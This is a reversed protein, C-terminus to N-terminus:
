RQILVKQCLIREKTALQIFYMGNAIDSVELCAEEQLGEKKRIVRGQIDLLVIDFFGSYQVQFFTQAPNPFLLFADEEEAIENSSVVDVVFEQTSVCGLADTITLFYTDPSLNQLNATTDGTHWLFFFPPTGGLLSDLQLTGDASASQTAPSINYTALLPETSPIFVETSDQCGNADTITFNYFGGSLETTEEGEQGLHTWQYTYPMEGTVSFTVTGNNTGFCSEPSIDEVKINYQNVEYAGLDPFDDLIRPHGAIDTLLQLSDASFISGGNIAPSCPLLSFDGNMTDRFMPWIAFLMNGECEDIGNSLCNEANVLSHHINYDYLTLNDPNNNFFIRQIDQLAEEWVICNAIEMNCYRNIYDFNPSWHKIIPYEGNNYFTCNTVLADARGNSGPLVVLAGSNQTFLTNSIKVNHYLNENGFNRCYIGGSAPISSTNNQFLSNQINLYSATNENNELYIGGGGNRSHNNFFTTNNLKITCSNNYNYGVIGGGVNDSENGEFYSNQFIFEVNNSTFFLNNTLCIAGGDGRTANKKFICNDIILKNDLIGDNYFIAGGGANSYNEEFFCNSFITVNNPNDIYFAGGFLLITANERFTCNKIEYDSELTSNELKYIAGGSKIAKNQFFICKNFKPNVFQNEQGGCYIAGGKEAVNHVFYCNRIVPNINSSLSNPQILVGGGLDRDDNTEEFVAYGHAITFGDLITTSDIGVMTIVHYSNDTSDSLLGINGSLITTNNDYDRQTLTTEHGEFGGYIAVGKPMDFSLDRNDTFTPYYTGKAVWISDGEQAVALADQLNVFANTWNSGNNGGNVAEQNVYIVEFSNQTFSRFFLLLFIIFFIAKKM